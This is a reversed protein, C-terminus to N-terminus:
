LPKLGNLAISASICFAVSNVIARKQESNAACTALTADGLEPNWGSYPKESVSKAFLLCPNM